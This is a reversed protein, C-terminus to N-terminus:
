VVRRTSTKHGGNGFATLKQQSRALTALTGQWSDAIATSGTATSFSQSIVQSLETQTASAIEQFSRSYAMAQDLTAKDQASKIQQFEAASNSSLMANAVSASDSLVTQLTAINLATLRESCQLYAKSLSLFADIAVQHANTFTELPTAPM